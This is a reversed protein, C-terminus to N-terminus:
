QFSEDVEFCVVIANLQAGSWPTFGDADYLAYEFSSPVLVDHLQSELYSVNFRVGAENDLPVTLCPNQLDSMIHNDLFRLQVNVSSATTNGNTVVSVSKIVLTRAHFARHLAILGSTVSATGPIHLYFLGM